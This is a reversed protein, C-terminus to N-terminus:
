DLQYGRNSVTQLHRAASKLKKRLRFIVNALASDFSNADIEGWTHEIIESKSVIAGRRKALYALVAYQNPSLSVERRSLSVRQTRFDILLDGIEIRESVATRPRRLISRVRAILEAFSIPVELFDDAGNELCEVGLGSKKPVLVVVPTTDGRKRMASLLSQADNLPVMHEAIVLDYSTHAALYAGVGCDPAEQVAFCNQALAARLSERERKNSHILLLHM